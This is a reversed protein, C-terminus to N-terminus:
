KRWGSPLEMIFRVKFRPIDPSTEPSCEHSLQGGHAHVIRRSIPLGLGTGTIARVPDDWAMREGVEYIRDYDRAPIGHGINEVITRVIHRTNEVTVTVTTHAFAYKRANDLLNNIVMDIASEDIPIDLQGHANLVLLLQSEREARIPARFRAVCREVLPRLPRMRQVVRVQDSAHLRQLDRWLAIKNAESRIRASIDSLVGSEPTGDATALDIEDAQNLLGQVPGLLAHRFRATQEISMRARQEYDLLLSIERAAEQAALRAQQGVAQPFMLLLCGRLMSNGAPGFRQILQLHHGLTEPLVLQTPFPPGTQLAILAAANATEFASVDFDVSTAFVSPRPTYVSAIVAVQCDECIFRRAWMTLESLMASALAQGERGSLREAVKNLSELVDSRFQRAMESGLQTALASTVEISSPDLYRGGALTLLQIVGLSQGDSIVPQCYWSRIGSWNLTRTIKLLADRELLKIDPHAWDAADPIFFYRQEALCRTTPSARGAAEGHLGQHGDSVGTVRLEGQDRQYVLVADAGVAARITQAVASAWKNNGLSPPPASEQLQRGVSAAFLKAHSGFVIPGIQRLFSRAEPESLDDDCTPILLRGARDMLFVIAGIRQADASAVLLPRPRVNYGPYAKRIRELVEGQARDALTAASGRISFFVTPGASPRVIWEATGYMVDHEGVVFLVAAAGRALTGASTVVSTFIDRTTSGGLAAVKALELAVAERVESAVISQCIPMLQAAFSEASALDREGDYTDETTRWFSLVGVVREQDRMPVLLFVRERDGSPDRPDQARGARGLVDIEGHHGTKCRVPRNAVHEPGAAHDIIISDGHLLVWDAFGRDKSVEYVVPESDVDTRSFIELSPGAAARRALYIKAGASRMHHSIDTIASRLATRPRGDRTTATAVRRMLEGDERRRLMAVGLALLDALSDVDDGGVAAAAEDEFIAVCMNCDFGRSVLWYGLEAVFTPRSCDGLTSILKGDEASLVERQSIWIRESRLSHLSVLAAVDVSGSSATELLERVFAELEAATVEGAATALSAIMSCLKRSDLM